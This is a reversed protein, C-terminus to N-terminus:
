TISVGTARALDQPTNVDFLFFLDPDLDRLDAAPVALPKVGDLFGRLSRGGDAVHRRLDPLLDVHYLGHFPQWGDETTVIVARSTTQRALRQLRRVAARSSFPLDCPLMLCWPHRAATLGAGLGALPGGVDSWDRVCRARDTPIDDRDAPLLVVDDSVSQAMDLVRDLLARGALQRDAKHGGLRRARGGALVLATLAESADSM